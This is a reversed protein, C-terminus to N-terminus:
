EKEEKNNEFDAVMCMFLKELEIVHVETNKIESGLARIDRLIRKIEDQTLEVRAGRLEVPEYTEHFVDNRVIDFGQGKIEVIWDSESACRGGTITNIYISKRGLAIIAKSGAFEQIEPKNDGSYQVATVPSQIQKYKDPM